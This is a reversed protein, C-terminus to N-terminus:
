HLLLFGDYYGGENSTIDIFNISISIEGGGKNNHHCVPVIMASVVGEEVCEGLWHVCVRRTLICSMCCM